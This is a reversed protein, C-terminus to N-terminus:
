QTFLKKFVLCLSSITLCMIPLYIIDLQIFKGFCITFANCIASITDLM